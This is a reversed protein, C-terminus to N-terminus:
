IDEKVLVQARLLERINNFAVRENGHEWFAALM